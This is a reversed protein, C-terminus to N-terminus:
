KGLGTINLLKQWYAMLGSKNIAQATLLDVESLKEEDKYVIIKGVVQGAEIPATLQEPLEIETIIEPDSNKLDSYNIDEALCIDISDAEGKAVALQEIIQGEKYLSQYIYNNFGHDLLVMSENFHGKSQSAGMIVSILRMEGRKVTAVLNRGAEETYGTKLGDTGEYWKLLSNTNWLIFPNPEPRFHYEYISTYDLIQPMQLSYDALIAMDAATTYHNDDHLGHPNVYNTDLMGLEAAKANMMDIFNQYSGGVFEAMAYAADNGSGVAIAILMDEVTRTEGPFLYVQSGGMGAAAESTTVLDDLSIQGNNIAELILAMTMLKTTSAPYVQEKANHQYLIQGTNADLLVASKVQLDLEAAKAPMAWIAIIILAAIVIRKFIIM